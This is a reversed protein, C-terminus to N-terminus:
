ASASFCFQTVTFYFAGDNALSYQEDTWAEAEDAGVLGHEVVYNRILPILYGGCTQPDLESIAFVHGQMQVDEFGAGRLKGAPTRPLFPDALHRDWADLMRRMREPDASHVSATSWDVDWM